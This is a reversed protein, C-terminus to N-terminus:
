NRLKGTRADIRVTRVREGGLLMKVRYTGGKLEVSLVRGGTAKRAIDAARDRSIIETGSDRDKAQAYRIGGSHPQRSDAHLSVSGLSVALTLSILAAVGLRGNTMLKKTL